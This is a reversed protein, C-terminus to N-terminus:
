RNLNQGQRTEVLVLAPERRSISAGYPRAYTRQLYSCETQAPMGHMELYEANDTAM